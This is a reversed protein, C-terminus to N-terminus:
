MYNFPTTKISVNTDLEIPITNNFSRNLRDVKDTSGYGDLGRETKDDLKTEEIELLEVKVPVVQAIRDGLKIRRTVKSTNLLIIGVENRFAEDITGPTNVITLGEKLALGSRPRVQIEYGPGVTMKLGTGILAREGSQLEFVGDDIFRQEMANGELLTEGHSGFHIYIRSVSYAVVDFGSDTKAKPKSPLPVNDYLKEVKLTLKDSTKNTKKTENTEAM